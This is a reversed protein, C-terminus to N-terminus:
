ESKRLKSLRIKRGHGKNLSRYTSTMAHCNPCLLRLNSEMNNSWDGDIHDVELPIRNTTPHIESWGCESCQNDYKIFLYRRIHASIKGEGASGTTEGRKWKSIYEAYVDDWQNKSNISRTKSRCSDCYDTKTNLVMDCLLCRYEKPPKSVKPKTEKAPKPKAIRKPYKSNNYTAACSKDCFFNGTKSKKIEAPTKEVPKGCTACEVTISTSQSNHLCEQSCFFDKNRRIGRMLEHEPKYHLNGCWKCAILYCLRERGSILLM